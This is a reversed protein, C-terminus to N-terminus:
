NMTYTFMKHYAQMVAKPDNLADLRGYSEANMVVRVRERELLAVKSTYYTRQALAILGAMILLVAGFKDM